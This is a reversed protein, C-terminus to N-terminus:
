RAGPDAGGKTQTQRSSDRRYALPSMGTLERFAVGFRSASGFGCTRAIENVSKETEGLLRKALTVRLDRLKVLPTCGLARQFRRELSSVSLNAAEAVEAMRLKPDAVRRHLERVAAEIARDEGPVVRTSDRAAVESPGVRTVLPAEGRGEIWQQLVGAAAQGAETFPLSVSSLSPQSTRCFLDDDDGGILAVDEPVAFGAELCLELLVRSLEDNGCGIAVPRPLAELAERMIGRGCDGVRTRHHRLEIPIRTVACDFGGQGIAAVFAQEREESLKSQDFGFFGFHRRGTELLHKAAVRGVAQHDFLIRPYEPLIESRPDVLVVPCSAARVVGISEVDTVQVIVGDWKGAHYVEPFNEAPSRPFVVWGKPLSAGFDAVGRVFSRGWRVDLFVSVLIRLPSKNGVPIRDHSM